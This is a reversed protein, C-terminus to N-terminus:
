LYRGGKRLLYDLEDKRWNTGGFRKDFFSGLKEVFKLWPNKKEISEVVDAAFTGIQTIEDKPAYYVAGEAASKKLTILVQKLNPPTYPFGAKHTLPFGPM